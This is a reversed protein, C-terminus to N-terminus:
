RVHVGFDEANENAYACDISCSDGLPLTSNTPAPSALTANNPTATLLNTAKILSDSSFSVTAGRATQFRSMVRSASSAASSEKISSTPRYHM